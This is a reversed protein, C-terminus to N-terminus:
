LDILNNAEEYWIYNEKPTRWNDGYTLELHKESDIPVQIKTNNYQIIHFKMLDTPYSYGTYRMLKIAYSYLVKKIKDPLVFEFLLSQKNLIIQPIKKFINTSLTINKDTGKWIVQIFYLYIKSIFSQPSIAWKITSLGGEVKYFSVDIKKNEGYFHLCDMDGFVREEKYGNSSFINFIEEKSTENDWVAFDIDHDWPLLRGERVIGLLTGHCVWFNIHQKQLMECVEHFVKEDRDM